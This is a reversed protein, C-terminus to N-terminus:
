SAVFQRLDGGSVPTKQSVSALPLVGMVKRNLAVSRVKKFSLIQILQESTVKALFIRSARLYNARLGIDSFWTKVQEVAEREAKVREGSVTVSQPSSRWSAEASKRITVSPSPLDLEILVSKEGDAHQEVFQRLASDTIKKHIATAKM